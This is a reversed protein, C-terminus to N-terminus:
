SRRASRRRGARSARFPGAKPAPLDPPVRFAPPGSLDLAGLPSAAAADRRTLSPLNWKEEILKLVSTHDLVEHLVFDPRAYPSVIVAPVRFGLRDYTSPGTDANSLEDLATGLLPKLLVLLGKPLSLQWNRAPVDDPAEAAPPPVHDYYGGHEDYIWLLLTSEWAPGHMVANIVAASFAEGHSIDQPNEESYEGFDPDVLSVAPLSGSEADAFFRQTSRLHRVCRAFGLPYLDATFSKNGRVANAVRPVWKGLSALRRLVVLGPAGFLRRLLVQVRHVNHYNVWSIDNRTLQDFITGAAPYDVLDWPLDDILGNATGSILFRRNPFTPGLCSCFWRDAVPFTRALGYYFPIDAETWYGMPVAPDRSGPAINTAISAAFGDNGGSGYQM